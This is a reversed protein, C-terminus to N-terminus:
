FNTGFFQKIKGVDSGCCNIALQLLLKAKQPNFIGAAIGYNTNATYSLGTRTSLVVPVSANYTLYQIKEIWTHDVTGDGGGAIVIGRAGQRVAADLLTVNMDQHAYLIAVEPLRTTKATDFYPKNIAHTPEYYFIPKENLFMALYGQEVAKFTDLSHANTKTLYFASGIRDNMTIMVGRNRASASGALSIAQYLNYPGDASLASAPRMAGVLVIPEPRNHTLDLLFATEELTDTGHTIVVGDASRNEFVASIQQSLKLTFSTNMNESAINSFQVGQVMSINNIEPIGKLIEDISLVGPTYNTQVTSSAGIGAITGGTAFVIVKPLLSHKETQMKMSIAASTVTSLLNFFLISGIM